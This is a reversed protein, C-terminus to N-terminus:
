TLLTFFPGFPLFLLYVPFPYVHGSVGPPPHPWAFLFIIQEDFFHIFSFNGNSRLVSDEFNM